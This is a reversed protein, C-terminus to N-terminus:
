VALEHVVKPRTRPVTSSPWTASLALIGHVRRNVIDYTTSRPLGELPGSFQSRSREAFVIRFFYRREHRRRQNHGERASFASRALCWSHAALQSISGSTFKSLENETFIAYFLRGGQAPLRSVRGLRHHLLPAISRTRVSGHFPHHPRSAGPVKWAARCAPVILVRRALCCRADFGREFLDFTLPVPAIFFVFILIPGHHAHVGQSRGSRANRDLEFHLAEITTTRRAGRPRMPTQDLGHCRSSSSSRAIQFLFEGSDSYNRLWSFMRKRRSQGRHHASTARRAPASLDTGLSDLTELATCVNHALGRTGARARRHACGTRTAAPDAPRRSRFCRYRRIANRAPEDATNM